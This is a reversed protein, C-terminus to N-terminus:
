KVNVDIYMMGADLAGYYRHRGNGNITFKDDSVKTVEIPMVYDGEEFAIRHKEIKSEDCKKRQKSNVYIDSLKVCVIM